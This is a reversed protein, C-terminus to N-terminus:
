YFFSKTYFKNLTKKDFPVSTRYILVKIIKLLLLFNVSGLIYKLSKNLTKKEVKSFYVQNAINRLTPGNVM